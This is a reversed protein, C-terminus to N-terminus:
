YESNAYIKEVAEKITALKEYRTFIDLCNKGNEYDIVESLWLCRDKACVLIGNKKSIRYVTGSEGYFPTKTLNSKLIKLKKGKYYTYAGPYPMTLARVRNYIENATLEDFFLIGDRPFRLPYYSSLDSDQIIPTLTNKEIKSLVDLLLKPFHKNAIEHLDAITNDDDIRFQKEILIDGSDIGRDVKIITITFNQEGNILAWNM